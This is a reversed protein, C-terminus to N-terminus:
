PSYIVMWWGSGSPDGNNKWSNWVGENGLWKSSRSEKQLPDNYYIRTAKPNDPDYELGTVVVFHAVSTPDYLRARIDIIVPDGGTLTEILFDLAQDPDDVHGTRVIDAYHAAIRVM